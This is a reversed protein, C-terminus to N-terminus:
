GIVKQDKFKTIDDWNYGMELLIEETHQGLNPAPSRYTGPTESFDLPAPCLDISGWVPHDFAVYHHNAKAQPDNFAELPTHVPSYVLKFHSLHSMWEDLTKKAFIDDLIKILAICNEARAPISNFRPDDKLNMIGLAQCVREWYFDAQMHYILLYRNDKTKYYNAIPNNATARYRKAPNQHPLTACTHMTDAAMSWVGNRYLSAYVAQGIGLRERAFLALMIGSALFMGSPIDGQGPRPWPPAGEENAMMYSLGSRDFYAVTDFGPEDQAEGHIGYGTLLAYILKPNHKKLTEYSIGFKEVERTRMAGLFIDAKAVMKYLIAQGEKKSLDLTFSKKNMNAHEFMYNFFGQERQTVGAGTQLGRVSDGREPHEIKIVDAGWQSLIEACTPGAGYQTFDLVRIGELAMKSQM